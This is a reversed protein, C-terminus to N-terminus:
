VADACLGTVNVSINGVGPLSRAAEILQSRLAAVLSQAPYGLVLEFAVDAGSIQVNRLAKSAVFDKGSHPDQVSALAALLAQETIAM